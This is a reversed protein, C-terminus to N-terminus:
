NMSPGEVQTNLIRLAGEWNGEWAVNLFERTAKMWAEWPPGIKQWMLAAEPPWAVAAARKWSAQAEGWLEDLSRLIKGKDFTNDFIEADLLSMARGHIDLQVESLASISDVGSSGVLSARKLHGSIHFIGFTGVLGGVLLILGMLGFAGILKSGLRIKEM